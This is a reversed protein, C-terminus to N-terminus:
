GQQQAHTPGACGTIARHLFQIISLSSRINNKRRDRRSRYCVSYASAGTVQPSKTISMVGRRIRRLRNVIMATENVHKCKAVNRMETNQAHVEPTPNTSKTNTVKGSRNSWVQIPFKGLHTSNNNAMNFLLRHPSPLASITSHTSSQHFRRLPHTQWRMLAVGLGEPNSFLLSRLTLDLRQM